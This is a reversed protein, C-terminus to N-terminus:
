FFVRIRKFNFYELLLVEERTNNKIKRKEENYYNRIILRSYDFHNNTINM